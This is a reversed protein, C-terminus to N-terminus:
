MCMRTDVLTADVSRRSPSVMDQAHGNKLLMIMFVQNIVTDVHLKATEAHCGPTYQRQMSIRNPPKLTVDQHRSSASVM